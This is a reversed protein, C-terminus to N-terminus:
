AGVLPAIAPVPFAPEFNHVRMANGCLVKWQEENTLGAVQELASSLSNPWTSDTHPYDMEIMVNEIADIDQIAKMGVYDSFFCAFIQDKFIQTPSREDIFLEVEREKLERSATADSMSGSYTLRRNWDGQVRLVYEARELTPAVWGIQSESMCIKLGPFRGLNGSFIWDLTTSIPLIFSNAALSVLYPADDATQAMTSSSGYHMCLPLGTEELVSWLPDWHGDLAHISPLHKGKYKLKAPNETFIIGKAGKDACRLVENVSEEVDWFPVLTGPIFRGPATGCWEDLMWDNWAKLCLLGLDIDNGEMFTQGAFRPFSPFNLSAIVGAEDMDALRAKPEYCGPRMDAFSLAHPSIEDTKKGAVASLGSMPFKKGEYQWFEDGNEYMVKPGADRYKAPLRDHWVHPPELVHDDVSIMWDLRYQGDADRYSATMASDM